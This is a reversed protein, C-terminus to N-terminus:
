LSLNGALNFSIVWLAAFGVILLECVFLNRIDQALCIQLRHNSLEGSLRAYEFCCKVPPLLKESAHPRRLQCSSSSFWFNLRSVASRLRSLAM